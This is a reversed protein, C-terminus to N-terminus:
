NGFIWHWALVYHFDGKVREGNPDLWYPFLEDTKLTYTKNEYTINPM